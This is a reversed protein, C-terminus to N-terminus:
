DKPKITLTEIDGLKQWSEESTLEFERAKLYEAWIIRNIGLKRFESILWPGHGHLYMANVYRRFQDEPLVLVTPKYDKISAIAQALDESDIWGGELIDRLM